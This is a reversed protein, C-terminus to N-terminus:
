PQIMRATVRIAFGAAEVRFVGRELCARAEGLVYCEGHQDSGVLDWGARDFAARYHTSVEKRSTGKPATYSFRTVYGSIRTGFGATWVIPELTKTTLVTGAPPGVSSLLSVNEGVGQRKGMDGDDAKVLTLGVVAFFALGLATLVAILWGAAIGLGVRAAVLGSSPRNGRV